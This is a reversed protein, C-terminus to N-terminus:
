REPMAYIVEPDIGRLTHYCRRALKRAVAIAALKGDHRRKVVQYYAYDPSNPRAACKGAEFLAWRLTAPGERSLSGGSRSGNSEHVTVDLGTHRVVQMSRNFRQCDGLEAWVIVASLPGVGFHRDALARCAPQRAGFRQLQRRLPVIETELSDIVHYGVTIRERAAPSLELTEGALWARTHEARLAGDPVAVGHQFLEAHIRQGWRSREDVLTKYLRTRERWELVASPPIWSEPLEGNLLLDRQLRSDSRDTKARKKRGRAAQTEAPEAVHAEFGAATIEEVVYRWGTCGEVAMAVPGGNARPGVEDALWRRFGARDPSWLRGRWSEGTEVILADFTIQGRHLDLGCVMSM